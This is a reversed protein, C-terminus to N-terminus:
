VDCQTHPGFIGRTGNQDSLNVFFYKWENRKLAFYSRVLSAGVLLHIIDLGLSVLIHEHLVNYEEVINLLPHIKKSRLVFYMM